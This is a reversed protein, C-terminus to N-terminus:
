LIQEYDSRLKDRKICATFASYYNRILYVCKLVMPLICLAVLLVMIGRSRQTATSTFAINDADANTATYTNTASTTTATNTDTVIASPGDCQAYFSALNNPYHLLFRPNQLVHKDWLALTERHVLHYLM